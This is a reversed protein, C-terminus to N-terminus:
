LAFKEFLFAFNVSFNFPPLYKTDLASKPNLVLYSWFTKRVVEAPIIGNIPHVTGSSNTKMCVM